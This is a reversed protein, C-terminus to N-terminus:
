VARQRPRAAAMEARRPRLQAAGPHAIAAFSPASGSAAARSFRNMAASGDARRSLTRASVPRNRSACGLYRPPPGAQPWTHRPLSSRGHRRAQTTGAAALLAQQM